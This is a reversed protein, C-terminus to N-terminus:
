TISEPKPTKRESIRKFYDYFYINLMILLLGYISDEIPITGLRIGLNESNNYWVIPEDLLSGTLLGNSIYFFPFIVLYALYVYSLEKNQKLCFLLYLITFSFTVITYSLDISVISIVLLITILFSSIKKHHPTLPNKKVLYKLSFYTFVCAYPICVFFLVEELPLNAIFIGTLYDPNFGWIGELTFYYDWILFLIMVIVNAPFFYKWDKYFSHKPYFSAIFPIIICGIDIILYTFSKM